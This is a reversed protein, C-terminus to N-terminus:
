LHLSEVGCLLKGLLIMKRECGNVKLTYSTPHNVPKIIIDGGEDALEKGTSDYILLTDRPEWTSTESLGSNYPQRRPPPDSLLRTTEDIADPDTVSCVCERSVLIM